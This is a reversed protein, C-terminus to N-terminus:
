DDGPFYDKDYVRGQERPRKYLYSYDDTSTSVDRTITLEKIGNPIDAVDEFEEPVVDQKRVLESAEELKLAKARENEQKEREAKRKRREGLRESRELNASFKESQKARKSHGLYLSPIWDPNFRDWLNAAKGSVFHKGCVRDNEM